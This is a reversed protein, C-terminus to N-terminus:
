RGPEDGLHATENLSALSREGSSAAMFRNVSTYTVDIFLQPSM